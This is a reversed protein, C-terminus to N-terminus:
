ENSLKDIIPKNLEAGVDKRSKQSFAKTMEQDIIEDSKKLPGADSNPPTVPVGIKSSGTADPQTFLRNPQKTKTVNSNQLQGTKSSGRPTEIFLRTPGESQATSATVAGAPFKIPRPLNQGSPPTTSITVQESQEDNPTTRALTIQSSTISNAGNTMNLEVM